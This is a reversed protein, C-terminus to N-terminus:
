RKKSEFVKQAQRMGHGLYFGTEPPQNYGVNQMAVSLRYPIDEMLCNIRYDTPITTTFIRLEDSEPTRAIIEERWDGLIDASLCPNSKSGNNFVVGDLKKVDVITHRQWDYKTVTEHDLLERLLDGDWWIGFNVSLHRGGLLLHRQHQPDAPDSADYLVEGRINRIGHSDTSWMEVGPSTPDIDAAMCRGVDSASPIQFIVRGTRADRFDSGDRKNEHCDWVQLDPSDPSFPMLHIADGHGMGTNYLGRGDHDVAMSGYTIEDCGDGDVDAVRLNHNGQGAYATWQPQNTDFVWRQRLTHGDWDWAAIVTRTYYGRCFLASARVGDLYGVAALMRDSRNAYDDGWDAPRGREPIYPQSDMAEGTLGNFVTVYEPGELIRGTMPRRRHNYKAWEREPTPTQADAAPRHRYDALSDGLVRGRGDRTGDATRVMFEARGDGDLDYVIFPVYHAGSRINVGMDIRWLLTGDLRYCDFLTNGTYGDHANDHANSPEWKLIIEYQGDGDVDAVSADNASYTFPQGDPTTGGAPRQLRVSLYGDAASAALTWRGNCRGGRVEYTTTRSLPQEDVFFTGGSTLPKANLKQGNRYVDFPENVRDTSLQRWSVVVQRGNRVAVVGRDLTERRMQELQYRPQATVVPSPGILLKWQDIVIHSDLARIVLTHRGAALQLPLLRLAQGRLVNQKWEESRFPEKLSYVVPAGGDVSVSYRLDGGDNPQTPILATRLVYSGGEAVEFQYTLAGDKPLAVANMSHGLMQIVRVGATAETYDCANSSYACEVPRGALKANVDAFVPLERPAADMLHRWKGGNMENYHRTLEQIESYARHSEASDSLIKRNMAATAFVPYVINAFFAYELEKRVLPRVATIDAKLQEFASIRSAAEAPTLPVESVPSLGRRYKKKDLEVQTYGMFEPRREGCLRYFEHMVPFLREGAETGFERCLWARYHSGLTEGNVCDINWAMDLFLELDYGAVKPDHVNVIWLKRVNHDYAQRMENYVLGPQTTTLWLYDHPRGWYSLHYYVGGGGQRQQERADSLRTMYGYNDDCWVLTVYDPVRLGKEYLQLVEKYPVFVQMQRSPDGVYQRLLEQQDDIVQQLGDLKEQETKYGEMSSDHIGRMGITFMNDKSRRVEQLREIWYKQVSDRNTRYNFAGREKVDWEDVNNRLLPECHSTGIVIGCSDAMAKAGATRFFATTGDHMAPWVANARLRLLLQFIRKYTEPGIRGGDAPEYNRCSWRRLSWDEDNLFVGRYEVSPTQETSFHSDITLRSRREPVCDGWWVWPSVGAMRSLELLGYATGRGGHGEVVIHGDEVYIRFGDDTAAQQVIRVTGNERAIPTMGTVQRLDSKLMELATQVVPDTRTTVQYSVPHTGDFWTVQGMAGTMLLWLTLVLLQRRSTQRNM